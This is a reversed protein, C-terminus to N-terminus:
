ALRRERMSNGSRGAHFPLSAPQRTCLRMRTRQARFAVYPNADEALCGLLEESIHPCEAIRYRVDPNEDNILTQLVEQPTNRNEAVAARVEASPHQALEALTAGDTRPNDAIHELLHACMHTALHALVVPPTEPSNAIRRRIAWAREESMGLKRKLGGGADEGEGKDILLSWIILKLADKMDDDNWDWTIESIFSLDPDNRDFTTPVGPEDPHFQSMM